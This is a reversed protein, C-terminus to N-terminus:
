DTLKAHIRELEGGFRGVADFVDSATDFGHLRLSLNQHRDFLVCETAVLTQIDAERAVCSTDGSNLSVLGPTAPEIDDSVPVEPALRGNVITLTYTQGYRLEAGEGGYAFRYGELQSQVHDDLSEVATELGGERPAVDDRKEGLLERPFSDVTIPIPAPAPREIAVAGIFVGVLLAVVGVVVVARFRVVGAPRDSPM